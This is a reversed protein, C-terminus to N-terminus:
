KPMINRDPKQFPFRNDTDPSIKYNGAKATFFVTNKGPLVEVNFNKRTSSGKVYWNGDALGNLVIQYTTKGKPISIEFAKNILMNGKPMSVVRNDFVLVDSLESNLHTVDLPKTEGDVLQFVTLFRDTKNAKTPTIMTRSAHSEPMNLDPSDFKVGFASMAEDGSLVKITQEQPAPLLMNVYTKGVKEGDRVQLILQKDKVEPKSLSNIQWYKKFDPNTSTIDDSLIVVAPIDSRDMNVFCLRRDYREIKKSYAGKLDVAFYSYFPKLNSPGFDSSIVKGYYFLSDNLVQDPTEPNVRVSRSGGSNVTSSAFKENPDLTLMMSHALSSKNFNLDYPTGYFKYLGIDGLQFGRYYIQIAGADSHQHNAFQYGGGKIEVVVDDSNEGFNWGTRAVMSGLIPGFDKTLALYDRNASAKINPDNLLLFLVPNVSSGGVRQFDYKITPNKSYSYALLLPLPPGWYYPQGKKPINFGDGDRLMQGNPLRMYLWQNDLNKINSDFVEKGTMRAFLTAAHLDWGLRYAGYNVGQNHRGSQYQFKRMPVLQELIAYSTYKYPTPDEDYIAISMSLLDRCVQAENGHGYVVPELFPPWGIEMDDALRLLSKYIRNKQTPTMLKYCWDYVESATYIARGLERTIDLLNGFEVNQLYGDILDLAEKGVKEDGTMLFYFAKREAAIELKENHQTEVEPNYKVSFPTLATKKVEAWAAANEEATLSAKIGPLSEPNVWIRPRSIPPVIKPIYAEAKEPVAPAVYTSFEVYDFNIGRPLWIKLTQPKGTLEFKGSTQLAVDWPVYVVRKTPRNDDIQIKIFLSEYKTKANKLLKEGEKNKRALTRMVYRGPTASRINFVLDAEQRQNDLAASVGTKLSTGKGKTLRSDEVIETTSPNIKVSEFTFRIKEVKSNNSSPYQGSSVAPFALGACIITLILRSYIGAKLFVNM